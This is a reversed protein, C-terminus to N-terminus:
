IGEIERLRHLLDTDGLVLDFEAHACEPGLGPGFLHPLLDLFPQSELAEVEVAQGFDHARTDTVLALFLIPGM